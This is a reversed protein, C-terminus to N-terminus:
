DGRETGTSSLALRGEYYGSIELNRTSVTGFLLHDRTAWLADAQLVSIARRVVRQSSAYEVIGKRPTLTARRTIGADSAEIEVSGGVIDLLSIGDGAVPEAARKRLDIRGAADYQEFGGFIAAVDGVPVPIVEGSKAADVRSVFYDCFLSSNHALYTLTEPDLKEGRLVKVHNVGLGSVYTMELRHGTLDKIREVLELQNMGALGPVFKSLGSLLRKGKPDVSGYLQVLRKVLCYQPFPQLPKDILESWILELVPSEPFEFEFEQDSVALIEDVAPFNQEFVVVAGDNEKVVTEAAVRYQYLFNANSRIAWKKNSGTGKVTFWGISDVQRGPKYFDLVEQEPAKKPRRSEPPPPIAL